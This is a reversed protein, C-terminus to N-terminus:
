HYQALSERHMLQEACKQLRLFCDEKRIYDDTIQAVVNSKEPKDMKIDGGSPASFRFCRHDQFLNTRSKQFREATNETETAIDKLTNFLSSASEGVAKLSRIGTGVSVLCNLNNTLTEHPGLIDQMEEWLKDVPNNCGTGGDLFRRRTPGIEIPEFFSSAASTARAAEWIKTCKYLEAPGRARPYSALIETSPGVGTATVFVKCAVGGEAKLLAESAKGKSQIIEKIGDELADHSYREKIQGRAGVPIHRKKTFIKEQLGLFAEICEEVSMELRGLMIAILGGTSTGGIMDFYDCPKPPNGSEIQEMLKQIILLASLGKIGGGDISLLNLNRGPM